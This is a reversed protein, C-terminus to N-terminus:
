LHLVGACLVLLLSPVMVLTLQVPVPVLLAVLVHTPSVILLGVAPM